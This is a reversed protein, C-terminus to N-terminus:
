ETQRPKEGIGIPIEYLTGQERSLAYLRDAEFGGAGPGWHANPVLEAPLEALAEIEAGDPTIRWVTARTFETVYVYGCADVSVGDIGGGDGGGAGPVLCGLAGEEDTECRGAAPTGWYEVSCDAGVALGECPTTVDPEPSCSVMGRAYEVCHGSLDVGALEAACPDGDELDACALWLPDEDAPPWCTLGGVGDPQCVGEGPREPDAIVIACADGELLESCPASWPNTPNCFETGEYVACEGDIPASGDGQDISCADGAEHGDCAEVWPDELIGVATECYLTEGLTYCTGERSGEGLSCPDADVKGDCAAISAEDLGRPAPAGFASPTQAFITPTTPNGAEDFDIAYLVGVGISGCYLTRYDASFSLGDPSQLGRAVITFSGTAPDVKRIRGAGLETVYVNGELDLELGDPHALDGLIRAVAGEPTVRYLGGDAPQAFILDGDPLFLLGTVLAGVNPVFLRREGERTIRVINGDDDVGVYRGEADFQFDESPTFGPLTEFPAPADAVEDCAPAVAADTEAPDGGDSSEAADPDAADPAGADPQAAPGGDPSGCAVIGHLGLIASLLRVSSGM